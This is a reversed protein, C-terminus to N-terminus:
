SSNKLKASLITSHLKELDWRSLSLVLSFDKNKKPICFRFFLSEDVYSFLFILISFPLFIHPQCLSTRSWRLTNWIITFMRRCAACLSLRSNKNESFPSFNRVSVLLYLQALHVKLRPERFLVKKRRAALYFVWFKTKTGRSYNECDRRQQKRKHRPQTVKIQNKKQKLTRSKQPKPTANPLHLILNPHCLSIKTKNLRFM